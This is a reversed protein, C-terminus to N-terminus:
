TVMYWTGYSGHLQFSKEEGNKGKKDRLGDGTRAAEGSKRLVAGAEKEGGGGAGDDDGGRQEHPEPDRGPGGRGAGGAPLPVAGRRLLQEPSFHM